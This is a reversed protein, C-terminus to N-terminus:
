APEGALAATHAPSRAPLRAELLHDGSQKRSCRIHGDYLSVRQKLGAPPRDGGMGPRNDSVDIELDRDGYRLAVNARTADAARAADLADHIVRYATLDVGQALPRYVGFKGLGVAMGDTRLREVLAELRALGPQPALEPREGARRRV